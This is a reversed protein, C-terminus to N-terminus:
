IAVIKKNQSKYQTQRNIILLSYFLLFYKMYGYEGTICTFSIYYTILLMIFLGLSKERMQKSFRFIKYFMIGWILFGVLGYNCLIVFVLSEFSYLRPHTGHISWYYSNYGYGKGFTMCSKVEDFAADLQELRMEISSGGVESGSRDTMSSITESLAPIQIILLYGIIGLMSVYFFTKFNKEQLLYVAITIFLAAIPTRIGCFFICSFLGVLIGLLVVNKNNAIYSYIYVAAMGLFAGFTMPHTFTSSIKIMLRNSQDGFQAELLEANNINALEMIYPNIGQLPILVFAYAIVVICVLAMTVLCHKGIKNDYQSASFVVIPLILNFIDLRWKNIAYGMPVGDQFLMEMILLGYFIFFPVFPKYAFQIKGYKRSCDVCYALLLATNMLNWGLSLGGVNINCYPVLFIYAIYLCLGIRFKVFFLILITVTLLTQVALM